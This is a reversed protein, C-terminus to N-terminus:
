FKTATSMGNLERVMDIVLNAQAMFYTRDYSSNSNNAKYSLDDRLKELQQLTFGNM